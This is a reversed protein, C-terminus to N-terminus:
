RVAVGPAARRLVASFGDHEQTAGDSDIAAIRAAAAALRVFGRAQALVASWFGAESTRSVDLEAALADADWALGVLRPSAGVFSGANLVGLSSGIVAVIATAGDPLGLRAEHVALRSGLHAVDRGHAADVFVIPPRAPMAASLEAEIRPDALGSVYVAPPPDDTRGAIPGVAALGAPDLEALALV